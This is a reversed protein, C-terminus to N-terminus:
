RMVHRVAAQDRASHVMGRRVSTRYIDTHESLVSVVDRSDMAYVTIQSTPTPLGFPFSVPITRGDNLPVFAEARSGEGYLITPSRAIGGHEMKEVGEDTRRFRGGHLAVGGFGFASKLAGAIAIELTLRAFSEALDKVFEKAAESASKTGKAVDLIADTANRAFDNIITNTLDDYSAKLKDAEDQARKQAETFKDVDAASVGQQEPTGVFPIPGTTSASSSPLPPLTARAASPAAAASRELYEARAKESEEIRQLLGVTELYEQKIKDAARLFSQALPSDEAGAALFQNYRVTADTFQQALGEARRTLADKSRDEIVGLTVLLDKIWLASQRAGEVFEGWYLQITPTNSAVWEAIFNAGKEIDPLFELVLTGFTRKISGELRQLAQAANEGAIGQAGTIVLGFKDAEEILARFEDAGNGVVQTMSKFTDEFVSSLRAAKEARTGVGDLNEAMVGLLDVAGLDRLQDITIGLREFGVTSENLGRLAQSRKRELSTLVQQLRDAGIGASNFAYELRSIDETTSGVERALKSTSDALDVIGRVYNVVARGAFFGAGLKFAANLKDVAKQALESERSIAKSTAKVGLDKAGYQIEVKQKVVAM